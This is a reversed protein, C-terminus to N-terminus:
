SRDGEQEPNWRKVIDLLKRCSPHILPMDRLTQVCRAAQVRSHEDCRRCIYRRLINNLNIQAFTNEFLFNDLPGDNPMYKCAVTHLASIGLSYEPLSFECQPHLLGGNRITDQYGDAAKQLAAYHFYTLWSGIKTDRFEADKAFRLPLMMDDGCMTMLALGERGVVEVIEPSIGADIAMFMLQDSSKIADFIDSPNDGAAEIETKLLRSRALLEETMRVRAEQWRKSQGNDHGIIELGPLTEGYKWLTEAIRNIGWSEPFVGWDLCHPDILVWRGDWLQLATAVHFSDPEFQRAEEYRDMVEMTRALESDIRLEQQAVDKRVMKILTRMSERECDRVDRLPGVCLAKAGAKHGFATLMQAKGQCNPDGGDGWKGYLKPLVKEPGLENIEMWGYALRFFNGENMLGGEQSPSKLLEFLRGAIEIQGDADARKWDEAWAIAKDPLCNGAAEVLCEGFYRTLARLEASFETQTALAKARDIAEKESYLHLLKGMEFHGARLAIGEDTNEPYLLPVGKEQKLLGEYRTSQMAQALTMGCGEQFGIEFINLM